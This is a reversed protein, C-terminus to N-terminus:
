GFTSSTTQAAPTLFSKLAYYQGINGVANGVANGGAVYGSARANGAATINNSINNAGVQLQDTLNTGAAVTQNTATQGTGALSSLRNFRGTLDGQSRNYRGTIDTQSRNFRGTLDTEYRNFANGYEGSAYDQNYRDLAKLTGGSLTLGRASASAEVGRQGETRRFEYGPDMQFDALTFPRNFEAPLPANFEAPLPTNFENVPANTGPPAITPNAQDLPITPLDASASADAPAAAAQAAPANQAALWAPTSGGPGYGAQAWQADTITRGLAIAQSIDQIPSNNKRAGLFGGLLMGTTSRGAGGHTGTAQQAAIMGPTPGSPAAVSTPASAAAPNGAASWATAAPAGRRSAPPTLGSSGALTSLAAYGVGRYPALDARALDYQRQAEANQAQQIATAQNSAQTQAGSANQSAYISAGAGIVAPIVLPWFLPM